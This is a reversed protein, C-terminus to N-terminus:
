SHSVCFIRLGLEVNENLRIRQRDPAVGALQNAIAPFALAELIAWM